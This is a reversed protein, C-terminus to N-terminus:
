AAGGTRERTGGSGGSGCGISWALVARRAAVGAAVQQNVLCREHALASDDVEVGRNVPGPHMLFPGPDGMDLAAATIGFGSAYGASSVDLTGRSIRERQVRLAYVVHPSSDFVQERSRAIAFGFRAFRSPLFGPPGALTLEAGLRPLLRMLSRAVRSRLIDGVIAVRLGALPMADTAEALRCRPVVCTHMTLADLLAQTPHAGVGAGANIVACRAVRRALRCAGSSGHRVVMAVPGMADITAITDALSEGKSQSSRAMDLNMVHAGLGAAAIEFSARTRTSNEFFLMAVVRGALPRAPGASVMASPRASTSDGAPGPASGAEGPLYGAMWRVGLDLITRIDGDSLDNISM